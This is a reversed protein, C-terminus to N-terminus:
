SHDEILHIIQDHLMQRQDDFRCKWYFLESLDTSSPFDRHLGKLKTFLPSLEAELEQLCGGQFFERPYSLLFSIDEQLVHFSQERITESIRHRLRDPDHVISLLEVGGIAAQATVNGKISEGLFQEISILLPDVYRAIFSHARNGAELSLKEKAELLDQLQIQVKEIIQAMSHHVSHGAISSPISTRNSPLVCSFLGRIKDFFSPRQSISRAQLETRRRLNRM